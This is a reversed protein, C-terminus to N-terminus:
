WPLVGVLRIALFLCLSLVSTLNMLRCALPIDQATVPRIPDGITPKHVLRGFYFADGALQVDLAGACVSETRASNPSSHNKHDRKYIRRANHGDLGLLFAAAIMLWASLVAPIWNVVDDLKAAVRGFYLYTENKYGIMSDMTNVAKYFFGLPAGGLALYFLPAVIGDSTNEAVTEVAAKAVHEEDLHQTDRGVIWSLYHRAQPLDGSKLPRYVRMSETRLSKTAPIQYCFLVELGFRLAPHVLGAAYLLGLPVFFSLLVMGAVLVAGAALEGKPTAPFMHRLRKEGGSIGWGMIQVPHLLWHPDGLLLDLLYGYLIAWVMEM